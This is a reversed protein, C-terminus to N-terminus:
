GAKDGDTFAFDSGRVKTSVITPLISALEALFAASLM